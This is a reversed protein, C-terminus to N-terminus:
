RPRDQRDDDIKTKDNIEKRLREIEEKQGYYAKLARQKLDEYKAKWANSTALLQANEAKLRNNEAELNKMKADQEKRYGTRAAYMREKIGGETVFDNQLKKLYSNIMADLQYCLTLCTNAFEEASWKDAFPLYDNPENHRRTYELVSNYRQPDRDKWIAYRHNHLFDKYDELLERISARAVNVLKLEMETSSKGDESGEVINQKGSRAAQVMQDVTRDGSIPLFRHCFVFTLQYIADAKHYFHLKRWDNGQKLVNPMDKDM